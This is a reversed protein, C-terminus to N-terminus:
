ARKKGWELMDHFGYEAIILADLIGEHIKKSKPNKPDSLDIDPFIRKIAIKSKAKPHTADCGQHMKSTWTKPSVERFPLGVFRLATVLEGYHKGYNFMGCAGNGPFVQAKELYVMVAHRKTKFATMIDSFEMINEPMTSLCVIDHHENIAAIGGRKGPDIGVLIM